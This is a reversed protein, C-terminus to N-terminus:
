LLVVESEQIERFEGSKVRDECTKLNNIWSRAQTGCRFIYTGFDTKNKIILYLTDPTWTKENNLFYRPFNKVVISSIRVFWDRAVEM